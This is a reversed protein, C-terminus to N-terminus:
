YQKLILKKLLNVVSIQGEELIKKRFIVLPVRFIYEEYGDRVDKTVINFIFPLKKLKKFSEECINCNETTVFIVKYMNLIIYAGM